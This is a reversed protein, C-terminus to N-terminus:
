SLFSYGDVTRGDPAQVTWNDVDKNDDATDQSPMHLKLGLKTRQLRQITNFSLYNLFPNNMSTSSFNIKSYLIKAFM